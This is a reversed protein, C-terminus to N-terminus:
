TKTWPELLGLKDLARRLSEAHLAHQRALLDVLTPVSTAADRVEDILGNLEKKLTDTFRRDIGLDELYRGRFLLDLRLGLNTPALAERVFRQRVEDIQREIGLAGILKELEEATLGFGHSARGLSGRHEIVAALVGEREKVEITDFLEHAELLDEVDGVRLAAGRRGVYGQELTRLLAVRHPVQEILTELTARGDPRFLAEFGARTPDVTTFRGRPPPLNRKPLFATGPLAPAPPPPRSGEGSKRRLPAIREKMTPKSSRARPARAAPVEVAPAAEAPLSVPPSPPPSSLSNEEAVRRVMEYYGSQERQEATAEDTGSLLDVVAFPGLKRTPESDALAQVRFDEDEGLLALADRVVSPSAPAKARRCYDSVAVAVPTPVDEPHRKRHWDMM